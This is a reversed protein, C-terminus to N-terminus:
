KTFFLSVIKNKGVIESSEFFILGPQKREWRLRVIWRKRTTLRNKHVEKLKGMEQGLKDVYKIHIPRSPM